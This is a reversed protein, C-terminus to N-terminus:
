MLSSVLPSRVISSTRSATSLLASSALFFSWSVRMTFVQSSSASIRRPAPNKKLQFVAFHPQQLLLFRCYSWKRYFVYSLLTSCSFDDVFLWFITKRVFLCLCFKLFNLIKAFFNCIAFLTIFACLFKFFLM